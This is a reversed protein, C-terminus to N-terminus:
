PMTGIKAKQNAFREKFDNVSKKQLRESAYKKMRHTFLGPPNEIHNDTKIESLTERIIQEPVKSAVLRYFGKSKPNQLQSAIDDATAEMRGSPQKITELKEILGTGTNNIKEKNLINHHARDQVDSIDSQERRSIQHAREHMDSAGRETAEEAEDMELQRELYFWEARKPKQKANQKNSIDVWEGLVFVNGRGTRKSKVIGSKVLESIHRSVVRRKLGTKAAIEDQNLSCVLKKNRYYEQLRMSHPKESRWIHRRLVLYIAYRPGVLRMFNVNDVLRFDTLIFQKNFNTNM